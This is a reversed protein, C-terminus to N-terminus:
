VTKLNSPSSYKPKEKNAISHKRTFDSQVQTYLEEYRAIMASMDFNQFAYEYQQQEMEMHQARNDIADLVITAVKEPSSTIDILSQEHILVEPVGGVAFARAPIGAAIAEAIVLGFSENLATHLYLDACKLYPIINQQHGLLLVQEELGYEAIKAELLPRDQGDGLLVFLIDPRSSKLTKAVEVIFVQNKRKELYGANIVIKKDRYRNKFAIDEKEERVKKFDIGNYVIEVLANEPFLHRPKQISYESVGNLYNVKSFLFRFWKTISKAVVGSLNERRIMETAPDDNFHCTVLVPVKNKWAMKAAAGAVIDQANIIDYHRNKKLLMTLYLRMFLNSEWAIQRPVKGFLGLFRLYVAFAYHLTRPADEITLVDVHHGQLRLKEALNKYHVSVGTPSSRIMQSIILIKM